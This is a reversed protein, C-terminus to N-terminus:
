TEILKVNFTRFKISLLKWTWLLSQAALSDCSSLCIFIYFVVRLYHHSVVIIDLSKVLTCYIGRITISRRFQVLDVREVTRLSLIGLQIRGLRLWGGVFSTGGIEELSSISSTELFSEGLRLRRGVEVLSAIWHKWRLSWRKTIFIGKDLEIRM